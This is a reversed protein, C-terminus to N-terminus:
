KCSQITGCEVMAAQDDQAHAPRHATKPRPPTGPDFGSKSEENTEHSHADITAYSAGYTGAIIFAQIFLFRSPVYCAMFRIPLFRSRAERHHSHLLWSRMPISVTEFRLKAFSQLRQLRQTRVLVPFGKWKVIDDAIGAWPRWGTCGTSPRVERPAPAIPRKVTGALDAGEDTVAYQTPSETRDALGMPSSTAYEQM